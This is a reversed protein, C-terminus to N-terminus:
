EEVATALRLLKSSLTINAQRAARLNIAFRMKNNIIKLEIIGGHHTFGDIDSVSLVGQKDAIADMLSDVRDAESRSVYLIRCDDLETVDEIKRINLRTGQVERGQLTFLVKGFSGNGALCLDLENNDDDGAMAPWETFKAFNYIFAAKVEYEKSEAAAALTIGAALLLALTRKM